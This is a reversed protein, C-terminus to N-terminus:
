GRVFEHVAEDEGQETWVLTGDALVEVSGSEEESLITKTEKGDNDYEVVGKFGGDYYIVGAENERGAFTWVFAKTASDAWNVEFCIDADSVTVEMRGRGTTKEYWNGAYISETTLGEETESTNEESDSGEAPEADEPEAPEADEPDAPVPTDTEVPVTDTTEAPASNAGCACLVAALLCVFLLVTLKKMM